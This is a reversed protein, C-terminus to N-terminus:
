KEEEEELARRLEALGRHLRTRVAEPSLDVMGAIERPKYELLCRLVVIARTQADLKGLSEITAAVNDDHVHATVQDIDM